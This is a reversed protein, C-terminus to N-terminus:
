IYTSYFFIMFHQFKHKEHVIFAFDKIFFVYCLIKCDKHLHFITEQKMVWFIIQLAQYDNKSLQQQYTPVYYFVPGM